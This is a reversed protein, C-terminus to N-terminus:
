IIKIPGSNIGDKIELDKIMLYGACIEFEEDELRMLKM